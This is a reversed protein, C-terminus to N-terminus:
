APSPYLARYEELARRLWPPLEEKCCDLAERSAEVTFRNLPDNNRPWWETTTVQVEEGDVEELLIEYLFEDGSALALASRPEAEELLKVGIGNEKLKEVLFDFMRM